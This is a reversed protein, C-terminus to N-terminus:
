PTDPKIRFSQAVLDIQKSRAKYCETSCQILLMSMTNGDGSLYVTKNLTQSQGPGVTMTFVTRVGKAGGPQPLEEDKLIEVGSAPGDDGVVPILANRLYNLSAQQRQAPTLTQVIALAFPEDPPGNTGTLHDISPTRGADYAVTWILDKIAQTQESDPDGLLLRDLAKQDVKQWEAPVKFYAKGSSDRVYTFEPGACGALVGAAAALAVVAGPRARARKM